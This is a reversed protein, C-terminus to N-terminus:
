MQGIRSRLTVAAFECLGLTEVPGTTCPTTLYVASCSGGSETIWQREAIVLYRTIVGEPGDDDCSHVHEIAELLAQRAHQEPSPM